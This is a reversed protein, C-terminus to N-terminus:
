NSEHIESAKASGEAINLCISVTCRNIQSVLAYKETTPFKSTLKYIELILRRSLKYVDLNECNFKM